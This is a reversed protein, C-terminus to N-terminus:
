APSYKKLEGIESTQSTIIARALAVVESNEGNKEAFEAMHLGGEHHSIMLSAFIKDAEKGRSRSLETLQEDSAYGAMSALPVPMGMWAMATETENTEAEGFMRLMQVMRGSETSQDFMIERAITRLVTPEDGSINLYISAMVVAQEHHIRMDQLFGADVDNHAVISSREGFRYGVGVLVMAFLIVALAVNLPNRWWPLVVVDDAEETVHSV